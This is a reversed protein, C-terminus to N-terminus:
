APKPLVVGLAHHHGTVVAVKILEAEGDNLGRIGHPHKLETTVERPGYLLACVSLVFGDVIM